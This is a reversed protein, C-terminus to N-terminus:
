KAEGNKKNILAIRLGGHVAVGGLTLGLGALGLFDMWGFRTHGPMYIGPVHALRSNRAHCEACTVADGKPAVMHTIPWNSVTPLFGIEGSFPRKEIKMGAEISKKIDFNGWFATDDSGWLHNYVLTKNGADYPMKTHVEKFPWIRAKPNSWSGQPNNIPTAPKSTDIKTDALTYIMEGNFWKYTPTLNEGWKFDGKISWYTHRKEGNGQKYEEEYYGAGNYMKGATSWDWDTITAVGGRAIKPIHCTQCAIREAHADLQYGVLNPKPHPSAGHCSECTAVNRRQGPKGIGGEDKAEMNYRSGSIAHKESVHCETCAFNLGDAAMHVDLAKDARILSSDLDGHKVGDGGGGNFHCSGCNERGPLGVHQAVETFNIPDKGEFMAACASHGHTPPLRYYKGTRDHCVLCDVSTQKNFAYDEGAKVGNGIHCVACMGENDKANTCFNNIVNEKGLRQGTRPNVYDWTWHITQKIHAEAETHCTACAKSVAASDAFPGKLAEFKSHDATDGRLAGSEQHEVPPPPPPPLEMKQLKEQAAAGRAAVLLAFFAFALLRATRAM